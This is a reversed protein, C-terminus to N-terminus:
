ELESQIDKEIFGYDENHSPVLDCIIEPSNM